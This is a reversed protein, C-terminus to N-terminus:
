YSFTLGDTDWTGDFVRVSDGPSGGGSLAPPDLNQPAAGLVTVPKSTATGDAADPRRATVELSLEHTEDAATPTYQEGTGAQQGDVFWTYAYTVDAPDWTGPDAAVTEGVAVVGTIAPRATNSPPGDAAGAATAGALVSVTGLLVAVLVSGVRRM